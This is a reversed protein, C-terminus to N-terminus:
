IAVKILVDLKNNSPIIELMAKKKNSNKEIGFLNTAIVYLIFTAVALVGTFSFLAWSCITGALMANTSNVWNQVGTNNNQGREYEIGFPVAAYISGFIIGLTLFTCAGAGFAITLGLFFNKNKSLENDESNKTSNSVYKIILNNSIYGWEKVFSINDNKIENSKIENSFLLFSLSYLIIVISKKM